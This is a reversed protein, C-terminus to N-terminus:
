WVTITGIGIKYQLIKKSNKKWIHDKLKVQGRDWSM